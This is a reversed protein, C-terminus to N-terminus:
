HADTVLTSADPERQVATWVIATDNLTKTANIDYILALDAMSITVTGNLNRAIVVALMATVHDARATQLALQQTLFAIHRQSASQHGNGPLILGSDPSRIM